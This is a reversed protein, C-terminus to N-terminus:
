DILVTNKRIIRASVRSTNASVSRSANGFPQKSVAIWDGAVGSQLALGPLSITVGNATNLLITIATNKTVDPLRAIKRSDLVEGVRLGMKAQYQSLEATALDLPDAGLTPSLRHAQWALKQGSLTEGAQVPQQVVWMDRTILVHATVGYQHVVGSANDQLLVKVMVQQPVAQALQSGWNGQLYLSQGKGVSPLPGSISVAVTDQPHLVGAKTLSKAVYQEITVALPSSAEDSLDHYPLPDTSPVAQPPDDAQLKTLHVQMPKAPTAYAPKIVGFTALLLCCLGLATRSANTKTVCWYEVSTTLGM